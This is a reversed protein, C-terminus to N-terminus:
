FVSVREDQAAQIWKLVKGDEDEGIVSQAVMDTLLEYNIGFAHIKVSVGFSAEYLCYSCRSANQICVACCLVLGGIAHM